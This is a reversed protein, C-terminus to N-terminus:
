KGCLLDYQLLEDQWEMINIRFCGGAQQSLPKCEHDSCISHHGTRYTALNTKTDTTVIKNGGDIAALSFCM